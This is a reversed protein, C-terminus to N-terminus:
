WNISCDHYIFFSQGTMPSCTPIIKTVCYTVMAVSHGALVGKIEAKLAEWFRCPSNKKKNYFKSLCSFICSKAFNSFFRYIPNLAVEFKQFNLTVRNHWSFLVLTNVLLQATKQYWSQLMLQYLTTIIVWWSRRRPFHQFSNQAVKLLNSLTKRQVRARLRSKQCARVMWSPVEFIM